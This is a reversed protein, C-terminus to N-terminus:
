AALGHYTTLKGLATLVIGVADQDHFENAVSRWGAADDFQFRTRRFHTRLRTPPTNNIETYTRMQQSAQYEGEPHGQKRLWDSQLDLLLSPADHLAFPVCFLLDQLDEPLKLGSGRDAIQRSEM